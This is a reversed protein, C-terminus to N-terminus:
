VVMYILCVVVGCVLSLVGARPIMYRLIEGEKGTKEATTLGLIISSPAILNGIAGGATQAGVLLYEPIDLLQATSSQFEGFLINSSMNSSTIFSGLTGILPSIFIYSKKMVQAVVAAIENIQGTGAMIRSLVLLNVVALGSNVTKNISTGYIKSLDANTIYKKVKYYQITIISSIFLFTGSHTLISIPAFKNVAPSTFGLGTTFGKFNLYLSFQSLFNKVVPNLLIVLTIGTLLIYPLFADSIKVKLEKKSDGSIEDKFINTEINCNTKYKKMRSIIYIAIFTICSPLFSALTANFQSVILQGGGQIISIFGIIPFGYKVAKGKGYIYLIMMGSALNLIWILLSAILAANNIDVLNTLGSALILSDWAVALTGFTGGWAQGFLSILVAPIPLVGISCLLITGVAVPVGFGTIGQLFGVFVQGITLVLIIRNSSFKLLAEKISELAGAQRIVEYMLIASFIVWIISLSSWIGKTIESAILDLPAKFLTMSIIITGMLVLSVGQSVSWEYKVILLLLSIIPIVAFIFYIM